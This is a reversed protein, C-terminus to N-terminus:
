PQCNFRARCPLNLLSPAINSNVASLHETAPYEGSMLSTLVSAPSDENNPYKVLFRSTFAFQSSKANLSKHLTSILSLATIVQLESRDIFGNV